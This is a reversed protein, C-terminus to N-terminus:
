FTDGDVIRTVEYTQTKDGKVLEEQIQELDKLGIRKQLIEDPILAFLITLLCLFGLCLIVPLFIVLYRRLHKELKIDM